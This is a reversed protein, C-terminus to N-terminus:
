LRITPPQDIEDGVCAVYLDRGALLTSHVCRDSIEASLSWAACYDIQLNHLGAPVTRCGLRVRQLGSDCRSADLCLPQVAFQGGVNCGGKGICEFLTM